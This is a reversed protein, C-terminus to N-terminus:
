RHKGSTLFRRTCKWWKIRSTGGRAPLTSLGHLDGPAREGLADGLAVAEDTEVLHVHVVDGVGHDHATQEPPHHIESDDAAHGRVVPRVIQVLVPELAFIEQRRDRQEILAQVDQVDVAADVVPLAHQFADLDVVRREALLGVPREQLGEPSDGFDLLFEVLEVHLAAHNGVAVPAPPTTQNSKL